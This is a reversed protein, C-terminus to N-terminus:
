RFRDGNRHNQRFNDCFTNIISYNYQLAVFLGQKVIYYPNSRSFGATELLNVIDSHTTLKNNMFYQDKKLGFQRRFIIENSELPIRRDTNDIVLEVFAILLRQSHSENILQQRQNANLGNFEDSLVFQIANLINTKGCGNHGVIVNHGSSLDTM